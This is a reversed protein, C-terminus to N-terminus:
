YYSEDAVLVWVTICSVAGHARGAAEEEAHAVLLRVGIFLVVDIIVLVFYDGEVGVRQLRALFLALFM